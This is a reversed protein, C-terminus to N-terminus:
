DVQRHFELRFDEGIGNHQRCLLDFNSSANDTTGEKKSAVCAGKNLGLPKSREDWGVFGSESGVYGNNGEGWVLEKVM